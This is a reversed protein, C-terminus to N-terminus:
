STLPLRREVFDQVCPGRRRGGIQPERVPNTAQLMFRIGGGLWLDPAGLPGEIEQGMGIEAGTVVGQQLVRVSRRDERVAAEALAHDRAFKRLITISKEDPAQQRKQRVLALALKASRQAADFVEIPAREVPIAAPLSLHIDIGRKKREPPIRGPVLPLMEHRRLNADRRGENLGAFVPDLVALPIQHPPLGSQGAAQTHRHRGVSLLRKSLCAARILAKAFVVVGYLLNSHTKLPLRQILPFQTVEAAAQSYRRIEVNSLETPLRVVIWIKVLLQLFAALVDIEDAVFVYELQRMRDDGFDRLQPVGGVDKGFGAIDAPKDVFVGCGTSVINPLVPAVHRLLKAEDRTDHVPAIRPAPLTIQTRPDAFSHVARKRNWSSAPRNARRASRKRLRTSSRAMWQRRGRSRPQPLKQIPPRTCTGSAKPM